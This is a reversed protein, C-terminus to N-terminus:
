YVFVITKLCIGLSLFIHLKWFIPILKFIKFSKKVPFAPYFFEVKERSFRTSSRGYFDLFKTIVFYVVPLNASQHVITRTNKSRTKKIKHYYAKLIQYASIIFICHSENVRVSVYHQMSKERVATNWSLSGFQFIQMM